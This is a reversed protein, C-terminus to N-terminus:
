WHLTVGIEEPHENEKKYQTHLSEIQFLARSLQTGSDSILKGGNRSVNHGM